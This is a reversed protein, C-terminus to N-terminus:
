IGTDPKQTDYEGLRADAYDLAWDKFAKADFASVWGNAQMSMLANEAWTVCSQQPEQNKIPLPIEGFFVTLDDYSVSAPVTGVIIRGVLKDNGGPYADDVVDERVRFWWDM